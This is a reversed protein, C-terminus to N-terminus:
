HLQSSHQIQLKEGHDLKETHRVVEDWADFTQKVCFAGFILSAFSYIWLLNVVASESVLGLDLFTVYMTATSSCLTVLALIFWFILRNMASSRVDKIRRNKPPEPRKPIIRSVRRNKRHKKM